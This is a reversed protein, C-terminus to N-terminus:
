GGATDSAPGSWLKGKYLKRSISPHFVTWPSDRNPDERMLQRFSYLKADLNDLLHLAIAELTMPLKPSGLEAEGHHSVIIHKLQWALDDPFAEGSMREAERIKRELMEVGITLHGILQGADSYGLDPDFTLEEVKGVDHVFAGMVMLDPDLGEYRPAVAAALEVVSVVHELLGGHYAHHNKIGAPAKQFRRMFAEDVLFCEALNRLHENSIARLRASLRELLSEVVQQGLTVFDREDVEAAHVAGISKLIIQMGGNYLQSTGQVRVFDGNEFGDYHDQRANWMLGHLSGSKDSLRVQLYLHGARNPRLKKEGALYVEDVEQGDALQTVFQRAMVKVSSM